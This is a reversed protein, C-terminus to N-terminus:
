AGELREAIAEIREALREITEVDAAEAADTDPPPGQKELSEIKKRLDAIDAFADALEDSVLLGAMILLRADGIQGMTASLESVRSDLYEGLKGLHAEQGDDCAISYDRGNISVSVQGM